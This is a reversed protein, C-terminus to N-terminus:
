AQKMLKKLMEKASEKALDMRAKQGENQVADMENLLWIAQQREADTIHPKSNLYLGYQYALANLRQWKGRLYAVKASKEMLSCESHLREIEEFITTPM